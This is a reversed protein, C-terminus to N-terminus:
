PEAKAPIVKWESRNGQYFQERSEPQTEPFATQGRLTLGFDTWVSNGGDIALLVQSNQVRTWLIMLFGVSSPFSATSHAGTDHNSVTALDPQETASSQWAQLPSQAQAPSQM